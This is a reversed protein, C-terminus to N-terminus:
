KFNNFTLTDEMFVKMGDEHNATKENSHVM